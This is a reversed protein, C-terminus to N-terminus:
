GNPARALQTIAGALGRVAQALRLANIKGPTDEATHYYPYRYLATDTVMLAPYGAQWFAWHDSWAVGPVSRPAAAGEAPLAAHHRFATLTRRLWARSRLDSVFALFNGRDPYFFGFPFPYRQSGPADSYFGLTELSLMGLVKEGRAAARQAYRRSGMAETQFYPLEENVFAVFHLARPLREHQLLRALELIAAIGSANDNAGPTGTETDYHAGIVIIDQTAGTGRTRAEINRVTKGEVVFSQSGVAYGYDRLAADIYAAAAQLQAYRRLNREGIEGALHEIHRMLRARLLADESGLPALAVAKDGPMVMMVLAAALTVCVGAFAAAGALVLRRSM